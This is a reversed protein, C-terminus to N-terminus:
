TLPQALLSSVNLLRPPSSCFIARIGMVIAALEDEAQVVAYTAKGTEPDMRLKPAYENIADALSSSPTIPYWSVFQVGHYLAGLGAATNGDVLIKGENFGSMREVRYPQTNVVNDKAHNYGRMEM